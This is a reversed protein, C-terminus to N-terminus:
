PMEYLKEASLRFKEGMPSEYRVPIPLASSMPPLAPNSRYLSTSSGWPLKTRTLLNRSLSSPRRARRVSKVIAREVESEPSRLVDPCFGEGASEAARGLDGIPYGFRLSCSSGSKLM